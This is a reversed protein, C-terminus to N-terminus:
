SNIINKYIAIYKKNIDEWKFNSTLKTCNKSIVSYNEVIDVIKKAIEEENLSDVAYGVVGEPFQQDFGQKKSYILPLGQSMAEAYTLGFTETLSPMVFLDNNRYYNLLEEKNVPKHYDVFNFKNIKEFETQNDIRGVINFTVNYGKDILIECAKATTSPNKRKSVAGAFIVNINKLQKAEKYQKNDIWFDDLGNPIVVSKERISNGLNKPVYDNLLKEKYANSLFIIKSANKLINIGTKRLYFIKKLFFNLDTDRVAVVYPINYQYNLKYAVYGNSFLTNAHIIDYSEIDMKEQVDKLIKRQKHHFVFRDIPKNCVSMTAFGDIGTKTYSLIDNSIPAYVDINLEKHSNQAQYFKKYFSNERYYSNIHLIKM